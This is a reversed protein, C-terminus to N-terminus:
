SPHSYGQGEKAEKEQTLVLFPPLPRHPSAGVEHCIFFLARVSEVFAGAFYGPVRMRGRTPFTKHPTHLLGRGQRVFFSFRLRLPTNCVGWLRARYHGPPQRQTITPLVPHKRENGQRPRQPPRIRYAGVWESSILRGDPYPRIAHAGCDPVM